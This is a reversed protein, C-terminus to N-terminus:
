INVKSTFLTFGNSYISQKSTYAQLVANSSIFCLYCSNKSLTHIALSFDVFCSLILLGTPILFVVVITRGTPWFYKCILFILFLNIKSTQQQFHHVETSPSAKTPVILAFFYATLLQKKTPKKKLTCVGSKSCGLQIKTLKLFTKIKADHIMM